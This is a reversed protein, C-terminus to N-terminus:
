SNPSNLIKKFGATIFTVKKNFLLDFIPSGSSLSVGTFVSFKSYTSAIFSVCVLLFVLSKMPSYKVLPVSKVLSL